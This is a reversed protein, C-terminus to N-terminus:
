YGLEKVWAAVDDACNQVTDRSVTFGNKIVSANPQLAAITNITNSFGSGGHTNFPIITKGSLNHSELFSYLIMPMDGWWNPYGLFIVDYKGLNEVTAALEPRAKNNQETKALDVLTRHNTPYPTKPEIRFIDAGTNKQILHAVYQTNGLVEGNIVVASNAEEKNMNNPNTTEPLSFYVVLTKKGEKNAASAEAPPLITKSQETSSPQPQSNNNSQNKSSGCGALSALVIVLALVLTLTKKM